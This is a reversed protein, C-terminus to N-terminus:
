RATTANARVRAGYRKTAAWGMATLAALIFLLTSGGEPVTVSTAPVEPRPDPKIIVHRGNQSQLVFEMYEM